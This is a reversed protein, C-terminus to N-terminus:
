WQKWVSGGKEIDKEMLEAAKRNLLLMESLEEKRRGSKETEVPGLANRLRENTEYEKELYERLVSSGAALLTKGYTYEVKSWEPERGPLAHLITYYKGEEFLMEEELIRFGTQHLFRRVEPIESQPQLVLERVGKVTEPAQRLIQIMLPGGMGAILIADVEGPRLKELGDSLRLEIRDQEGFWKVNNEARELPGKNVDMAIVKPAIDEQVLFISTYAHDCGVDATRNGKTVFSATRRMRESLFSRVARCIRTEEM